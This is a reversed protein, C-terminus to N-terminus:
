YLKTMKVKNWPYLRHQLSYLCLVSYLHIICYRNALCLTNFIDITAFYFMRVIGVAIIIFRDKDFDTLKFGLLFLKLWCFHVKSSM